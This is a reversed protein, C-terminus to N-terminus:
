NKCLKGLMEGGDLCGNEDITFVTISNDEGKLKVKNGEMEYSIEKTIGMMTIEAKSGSKFIISKIRFSSNGEATYTGSLGSDCGTTIILLSFLLATFFFCNTGPFTKM